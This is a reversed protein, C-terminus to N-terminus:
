INEEASQIKTYAEINQTKIHDSLVPLQCFDVPFNRTPTSSRYELSKRHKGAPDPPWLRRGPYLAFTQSSYIMKYHIFVYPVKKKMNKACGYEILQM